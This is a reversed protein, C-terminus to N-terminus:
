GFALCPAVYTIGCTAWGPLDCSGCCALLGGDWKNSLPDAQPPVAARTFHSDQPSKLLPEQEREAKPGQM